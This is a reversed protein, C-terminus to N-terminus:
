SNTCVPDKAEYVFYISLLLRAGGTSLNEGMFNGGKVSEGVDSTTLSNRIHFKAFSMITESSLLRLRPLDSRSGLGDQFAM